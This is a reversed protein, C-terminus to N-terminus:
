PQRLCIESVGDFFPLVTVIVRSDEAVFRNFASVLEGAKTWHAINAPDINATSEHDITFGRAFVLGLNTLAKLALPAYPPKFYRVM